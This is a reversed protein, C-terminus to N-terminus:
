NNNKAVTSLDVNLRRGDGRDQICPPPSVDGQGRRTPAVPIKPIFAGQKPVARPVFVWLEPPARPAATEM